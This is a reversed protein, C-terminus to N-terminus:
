FSKHFLRVHFLIVDPLHIVLIDMWVIVFQAIITSEVSPMKDVLIPALTSVNKTQVHKIKPVNLVLLVNQVVVLLTESILHYVLASLKTILKEANHILDM